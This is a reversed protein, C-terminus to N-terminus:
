GMWGAVMAVQAKPKRAAPEKIMLAIYRFADAGHSYHDHL